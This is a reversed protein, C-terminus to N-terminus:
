DFTYYHVDGEYDIHYGRDTVDLLEASTVAKVYGRRYAQDLKEPLTQKDALCLLLGLILLCVLVDTKTHKKGFLIRHLYMMFIISLTIVVINFM